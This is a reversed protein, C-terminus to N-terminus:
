ASDASGRRFGIMNRWANIFAEGDFKKGYAEVTLSVDDWHEFLAIIKERAAFVEGLPYLFRPDANVLERHPGIDSLLVPVGASIFEAASLGFSEGTSPSIFVGKHGKVVRIFAPVADFAIHDRLFSRGLIKKGTLDTVTEAAEAGNGIIAFMINYNEAFLEFIRAAETFNKLTDLRALYAIPRKTFYSDDTKPSINYFEEPVPNPLVFVPPLGAFEQLILSKFWISPVVIGLINGPLSKLYQRNEVYPTHCEVLVNDANGIHKFFRPTDIVFVFDYRALNPPTTEDILFASLLNDLRNARIYEQFSQLAGYDELYGISIHVDQGYRRFTKSRNLVAREVGGFSCFQYVLLIDM